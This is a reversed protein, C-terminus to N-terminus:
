HVSRLSRNHMMWFMIGLAILIVSSLPTFSCIASYGLYCTEAIKADPIFTLLAGIFSLIALWLTTNNRKIEVGDM